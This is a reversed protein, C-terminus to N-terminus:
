PSDAGVIVTSRDLQLADAVRLAIEYRSLSEPGPLQWVGARQEPALSDIRWLAEAIDRAMAPQRIEDHFWRTPQGDRAGSRIRETGRDEPDLSIVLPLRVVSSRTSAGLVIREAEVKWRGYDWIPIPSRGSTSRM